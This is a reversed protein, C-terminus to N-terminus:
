WESIRGCKECRLVVPLKPARPDAPRIAKWHLCHPWCRGTIKARIWMASLWLPWLFAGTLRSLGDGVALLAREYWTLM